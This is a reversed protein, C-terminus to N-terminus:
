IIIAIFCYSIKYVLLKEKIKNTRINYNNLLLFILKKKLNKNKNEDKHSYLKIVLPRM